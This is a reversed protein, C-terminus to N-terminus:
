QAGIVQGAVEASQGDGLQLYSNQSLIGLAPDLDQEEPVSAYCGGPM